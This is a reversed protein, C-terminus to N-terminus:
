STLREVISILGVVFVVLGAVAVLSCGTAALKSSPSTSPTPSRAHRAAPVWDRGSQEKVAAQLAALRVRVSEPFSEIGDRIPLGAVVDSATPYRERMAAMATDVDTGSCETLYWFAGARPLDGMRFYVEASLELVAQDTPRAAFLGTVRDRAKWLRGAELDERVRIVGSSEM